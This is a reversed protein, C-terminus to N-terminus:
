RISVESASMLSLSFNMLSLSCILFTSSMPIPPELQPTFANFSKKNSSFLLSRSSKMMSLVEDCVKVWVM